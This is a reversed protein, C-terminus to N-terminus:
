AVTANLIPSIAGAYGWGRAAPASVRIQIRSGHAVAPVLFRATLRGNAGTQLRPFTQWPSNPGRRWQAILGLGQTPIAGGLVRASLVM